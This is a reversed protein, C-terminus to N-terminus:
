GLAIGVNWAYLDACFLGIEAAFSNGLINREGHIDHRKQGLRRFREVAYDEEVYDLMKWPGQNDM